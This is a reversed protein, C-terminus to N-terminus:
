NNSFQSQGEIAGAIDHAGMLIMLGADAGIFWGICMMRGRAGGVMLFYAGVCFGAIAFLLGFGQIFRILSMGSQYMETNEANFLMLSDLFLSVDM